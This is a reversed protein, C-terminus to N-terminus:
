ANGCESLIYTQISKRAVYRSSEAIIPSKWNINAPNPPESLTYIDIRYDGTADTAFRIKETGRGSTPTDFEGIFEGNPAFVKTIIDM